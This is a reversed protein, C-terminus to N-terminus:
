SKLSSAMGNWVARADLSIALSTLGQAREQRQSQYTKSQNEWDQQCAFWWSGFSFLYNVHSSALPKVESFDVLVHNIQQAATFPSREASTCHSPTPLSQNEGKM